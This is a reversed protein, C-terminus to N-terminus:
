IGEQAYIYPTAVIFAIALGVRQNAERRDKVVSSDLNMDEVSGDHIKLAIDGNNIDDIKYVKLPNDVNLFYGLDKGNLLATIHAKELAQYNKGGDGIFRKWLWLGVDKVKYKGESNKPILKAWDKEWVAVKNGESDKTYNGNADKIAKYSNTYIYSEEISRNYNVQFLNSNARSEASTQHGFVDHIPHFIEISEKSLHYSPDYIKYINDSNDVVMMNIVGMVREISTKYKYRSASHFDTSIAYAQLFSIISKKSMDRWSKQINAIAQTTLNDDAFHRIIMLPLNDLSEQQTIGLKAIADLQTDATASSPITTKLINLEGRYHNDTGFTIEKDPGGDAESHWDAKMDTLARATYPITTNEHYDPDYLGLIGLYLQYYERAFDENGKFQGDVFINKNHGFQYAVGANKAGQAIVENYPKDEVIKKIINDYHHIMPLPYVGADRNISMHYNTEWLGLRYLFPNLGRSMVGLTWTNKDVSWNTSLFEAKRLENLFNDSSSGSWFSALAELSSTNPLTSTTPSLLSNQPANTLMQAIADNPSMDAWAKIQTDSAHGGYAFTDLVKKVAVESWTADDVTTFGTSTVPPLDPVIVVPLIKVPGKDKSTNKDGISLNTDGLSGGGGCGNFIVVMVIFILYNRM